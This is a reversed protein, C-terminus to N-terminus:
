GDGVARAVRFGQDTYIFWPTIDGAFACRCHLSGAFWSGGKFVRREPDGRFDPDGCLDRVSGALDRVGYVSRDTKVAGVAAPRARGPQSSRMRCLTPDFRDGWPFIRGDVGRAAKEWQLETPLSWALGDREGLWACYAMADFWSVATSPWHPDWRDGDRDQEPVVYRGGATPRAWYQARNVSVGAEQRPVREWAADPDHQHLATLFEAYAACTVPLEAILFGPLRPNSRPLAYNARGDGGFQFPGAPVYIMGDGTEAETLLRAPDGGDWHRGRTIHVPYVTDRYGTARLTLVYSGMELPVADLPTHGLARRDTRPWIVGSRDLRECIVEAGPPDTRLTLAGTGRLRRAYRGDDYVRVREGATVQEEVEGQAEAEVFRHWHVDALFRRADPNASDLHLGQEAQALVDVFIRARERRLARVRDQGEIMEAKDVLPAWPEISRELDRGRIELAEQEATATLWESWRARARALSEMSAARRRRGELVAEVAERLAAASAYRDEPEAAMARMCVAAIADPVPRVERPDPTPAELAAYLLHYVNGGKFPPEGTLLEYLVCGLSYVDSREDLTDLEGRAQEPSMYGPTGVARLAGGPGADPKGRIAAVGWDMVLVEGFRGLMINEPKLDRHLVGRDHAYAVANCIQLFAHLLRTETWETALEPDNSRVVQQLSRGDVRKMVFFVQGDADVCIEHVPVINPHQLQSTIQAEAVFRGLQQLGLDDSDLIVKLAVPRRLQPDHAEVVRGMGGRGIERRAEFRGLRSGAPLEFTEAPLIPIKDTPLDVGLRELVETITVQKGDDEALVVLTERITTQLYSSM